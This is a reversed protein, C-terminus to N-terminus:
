VNTIEEKKVLSKIYEYDKTDLATQKLENIELSNAIKTGMLYATKVEYSITYKLIIDSNVIILSKELTDKINLYAERTNLQVGSLTDYLSYGTSSM